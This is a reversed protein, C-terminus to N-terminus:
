LPAFHTKLGKRKMWPYVTNTLWARPRFILINKSDLLQHSQCHGLARQLKTCSCGQLLFHQLFKPKACNIEAEKWSGSLSLGRFSTSQIGALPSGQCPIQATSSAFADDKHEHVPINICVCWKWYLHLLDGWGTGSGATHVLFLSRFLIHAPVPSSNTLLDLPFHLVM